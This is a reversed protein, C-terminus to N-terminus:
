SQEAGHQEPGAAPDPVRPIGNQPQKQSTV